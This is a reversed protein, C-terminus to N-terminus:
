IKYIIYIVKEHIFIFLINQEGRLNKESSKKREPAGPNSTINEVSKNENM